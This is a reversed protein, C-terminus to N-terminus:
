KNVNKSNTKVKEKERERKWYYYYINPFLIKLLYNLLILILIM